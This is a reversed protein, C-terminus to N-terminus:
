YSGDFISQGGIGHWSSLMAKQYLKIPKSFVKKFSKFIRM